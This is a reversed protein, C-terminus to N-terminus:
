KGSRTKLQELEYELWTSFKPDDKIQEIAWAMFSSLFAPGPIPPDDGTLLWDASVGCAKAIKVVAFANPNVTERDVWGQITSPPVGAARALRTHAGDFKNKIEILLRNKFTKEM